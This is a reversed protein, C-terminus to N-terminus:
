KLLFTSKQRERVYESPKKWANTMQLYKSFLVQFHQYPYEQWVLARCNVHITQNYLILM